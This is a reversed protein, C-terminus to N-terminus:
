GPKQELLPSPSSSEFRPTHVVRRCTALFRCFKDECVVRPIIMDIVHCSLHCPVLERVDAVVVVVLVLVLVVVAVTVAVVVFLCFAPFLLLSPLCSFSFSSFRCFSLLFHLLKENRAFGNEVLLMTKQFSFMTPRNLRDMERTLLEFHLKSLYRM